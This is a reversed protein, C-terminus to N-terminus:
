VQKLCSRNNVVKYVQSASGGAELSDWRLRIEDYSKQFKCLHTVVYLKAHTRLIQIWTMHGYPLLKVWQAMTVAWGDTSMVPAQRTHASSGSNTCSLLCSRILQTWIAEWPGRFSNSMDRRLNYNFSSFLPDPLTYVFVIHILFIFPVRQFATPYCLHLFLSDLCIPSCCSPRIYTVQILRRLFSSIMEALETHHIEFSCVTMQVRSPSM